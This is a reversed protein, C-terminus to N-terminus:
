QKGSRPEMLKGAVKAALSRPALRTTAAAAFNLYGHIVSPTKGLKSFCTAVVEEPEAMLFDPPTVEIGAVQQFETRTYGPSLAIVDIGFPKLEAWLAEGFNLNFVKTAGYTAMYPTPQYSATSALMIIAGNKRKIMDPLFAATLAVPARCNLDVMRVEKAPDQEHFHGLTGFGANNILMGIKLKRADVEERIKDAASRKTLDQAIFHAKVGHEKAIAGALEELLAQRRAVLVVNMGERAVHHAFAKGLGASAGTILAAGQYRESLKNVM